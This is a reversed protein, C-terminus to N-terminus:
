VQNDWKWRRGVEELVKARAQSKRAEDEVWSRLIQIAEKETELVTKVNVLEEQKRQLEGLIVQLNVTEEMYSVRESEVTESMESVEEKLSDVLQKQCNMGAREKIFEGVAREHVIKEQELDRIAELYHGQVSLGRTKEEKLKEDWFNQIDGRDLLESRIEEMEVQKLSNEAELRSLEICIAERMRGSTLAVAAQAKTSPKSPQFRKSHGFVNRLISEDGALLDMYLEPSADSSIEKLDMLGAKRRSIKEIIGSSFEYDLQAKWNLLDQRSIFRDPFFNVGGQAKSDNLDSSSDKGSLKSQIIGAEALAQISGFDPDEFSVDDFASIISGSLLSSPVIRNKRNRELLSNARVLWRTYERRTCLEDARVDNEIIKLKKLVSTAEQQTSDVALPIIVRELKEVYTDSKFTEGIANSAYEPIPEAAMFDGNPVDSETTKNSTTKDGSPMLVGHLAHLPSSLQFKFGRRSLSFHAILTFLVAISTGVGAFVFTSLGKKKHVPSEFTAWGGYDDNADRGNPSFWSVDIDRGAVVSACVGVRPNRHTFISVNGRRLLSPRYTTFLCPSSLPGSSTCMQQM